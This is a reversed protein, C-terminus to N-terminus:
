DIYIIETPSEKFAKENVVTKSPIRVKMLIHCRRFASSGIEELTSPFVAEKMFTCDCFAHAAIRKVGEPIVVKSLFECGEFTNGKIETLGEPIDINELLRCGSFAGGGLYSLTEPMDVSILDKSDAFAYGRITDISDPLVISEVRQLNAFVNGRIGIVKGEKYNEPVVIEKPQFVGMTYFRVYYDNEYKEFMMHPKMFILFPLIASVAIMAIQLCLGKKENSAGSMISAVIYGIEEDPRSKVEKLLYSMTNLKRLFFLYIAVNVFELWVFSIRFHFFWSCILAFSLVSFIITFILKKKAIAPMNSKPGINQKKMEEQIFYSIVSDENQFLIKELEPNSREM